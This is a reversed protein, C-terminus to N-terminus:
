TDRGFFKSKQYVPLMGFALALQRMTRGPISCFYSHIGSVNQKRDAIWGDVARILGLTAKQRSFIPALKKFNVDLLLPEVQFMLRAACFGVIEGGFEAVYVIAHSLDQQEYLARQESLM